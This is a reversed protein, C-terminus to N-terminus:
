NREVSCVKLASCSNKKQQNANNSSSLGWSYEIGEGALEPHCKPTRIVLVNRKMLTDQLLTTENAFDECQTMLHYLSYNENVNGHADKKGNISYASLNRKDIFGREWLIQLLGKAKGEWGIIEEEYTIMLPISMTTELKKLKSEPKRKYM